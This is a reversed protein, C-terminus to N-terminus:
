SQSTTEIVWTELELAGEGRGSKIRWDLQFLGELAADLKQLSFARLQRSFYPAQKPSIRGQRLAESESHGHEMLYKVQWLRRIQWHLLGVLATVDEGQDSLIQKLLLIAREPQRSAVANALSFVDVEQWNEEFLEVMEITIETKDGAYQILQELISDLFVPMAGVQDDLRSLADPTISKGFQRVKTQIFKSSASKKLKDDLFQVEGFKGIVAALDSRRDLQNSEFILHSAPNPDSLYANLIEVTKENLREANKLVFAQAEALFPLTRVQGLLNEIKTEALDQQFVTLSSGFKQSLTKLISKRHEEVLFADGVLLYVSTKVEGIKLLGTSSM